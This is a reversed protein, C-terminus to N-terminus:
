GAVVSFAVENSVISSDDKMQIYATYAGPQAQEIKGEVPCGATSLATDWTVTQVDTDDKTMLLRRSVSECADSRWVNGAANKIILVRSGDSADVLCDKEGLHRLTAIFAINGGPTVSAVPVSLEIKLDSQSCNGIKVGSKKSDDSSNNDSNGSNGSGSNDSNNQSSDSSQESSDQSSNSSQFGDSRSFIAQCGKVLGFTVSIILLLAVSFAVIRRRRYVPDSNVAIRGVAINRNKAPKASKSNATKSNAIKGNIRQRISDRKGANKKILRQMNARLNKAVSKKDFKGDSRRDSRGDYKGNGKAAMYVM